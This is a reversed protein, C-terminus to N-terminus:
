KKEINAGKNPLQGAPSMSHLSTSSEGHLDELLKRNSTSSHDSSSRCRYDSPLVTQELLRLQPHIIQTQHAQVSEEEEEEGELISPSFFESAAQGAHDHAAADRALSKVITQAEDSSFPLNLTSERSLNQLSLSRPFILDDETHVDSPKAEAPITKRQLLNREEITKMPLQLQPSNTNPSIEQSDTSSTQQSSDNATKEQWRSPRFAWAPGGCRKIDDLTRILDDISPSDSRNSGLLSLLAPLVVCGHLTALVLVATMMRVFTFFIMSESFATPILILMMTCFSHVIASGMTFMAEVARHERTPGVAEAFAHCIHTTYDVSLGAAIILMVMTLINVTLGFLPLCAFLGLNISGIMLVIMIGLRVEPIMLASILMVIILASGMFAITRPIITVDSEFILFLSSYVHTEFAHLDVSQPQAANRMDVMARSALGSDLFFVMTAAFRWTRLDDTQPDLVFDRKYNGGLGGPMLWDKIECNFRERSNGPGKQACDPACYTEDKGTLCMEREKLFIGLPPEVQVIAWLEILRKEMDLYAAQTTPKWWEAGRSFFFSVEDGTQPNHAKLMTVFKGIYSSPPALDELALGTQIDILASFSLHLYVGWLTLIFLKYLPSGLYSAFHRIIWLRWSLGVTGPEPESILKAEEATLIIERIKKDNSTAQNNDNNDSTNNQINTTSISTPPIDSQPVMVISDRRQITPWADGGNIEQSSQFHEDNNDNDTYERNYDTDRISAMITPNGDEEDRKNMSSSRNLLDPYSSGAAANLLNVRKLSSRSVNPIDGPFFKRRRINSHSKFEEQTDLNLNGDEDEFQSNMNNGNQQQLEVMSSPECKVGDEGYNKRVIPYALIYSEDQIYDDDVDSEFSWAISDNRAEDTVDVDRVRQGGPIVKLGTSAAWFACQGAVDGRDLVFPTILQPAVSQDSGIRPLEDAKLRAVILGEEITPGVIAAGGEHFLKMNSYYKPGVVPNIQDRQVHLFAIDFVSIGKSLKDIDIKENPCQPKFMMRFCRWWTPFPNIDGNLERQLDMALVGGFFSQVAMFGFILGLTMFACFCFIAKYPTMMGIGFSVVNTVTTITVALGSDMMAVTFREQGSKLHGTLSLANIIVFLDDVGVGLVLFPVAEATAVHPLGCWYLVGNSIIFGIGAAIVGAAAPISRTLRINSFSTNVLVSYVILLFVGSSLILIEKLKMATAKYIEDDLSKRANPYSKFPIPGAERGRRMLHSENYNNSSPSSIVGSCTLPAHPMSWKNTGMDCNSISIATDNEACNYTATLGDESLRLRVVKEDEPFAPSGCPAWLQPNLVNQVFSEEWEMIPPTSIAGGDSDWVPRDENEHGPIALSTPNILGKQNTTRSPDLYYVWLNSIATKAVKSYGQPETETIDMFYTVNPFARANFNDYLRFHIPVQISPLGFDMPDLMEPVTFYECLPGRAYCLDKFSYDFGDHFVTINRIKRDFLGLIEMYPQSLMDRNERDEAVVYEFRKLEGFYERLKEEAIHARTDRISYVKLVDYEADRIIYGTGCLVTLFLPILVCQFINQM